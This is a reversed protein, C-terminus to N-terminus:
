KRRRRRENRTASEAVPHAPPTPQLSDVLQLRRETTAPSTLRQYREELARRIAADESEGTLARVRRLLLRTEFQLSDIDFAGFM